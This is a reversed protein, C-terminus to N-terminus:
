HGPTTTETTTSVARRTTTTRPVTTTTTPAESTTTVAVTTTTVQVTTTTTPKVTSTTPQVTTTTTPRSTSTTTAPRTTTTTSSTTTTSGGPSCTRTPCPNVAFNWDSHGSKFWYRGFLKTANGLSVDANPAWLQTYTRSSRGFAVTQGKVILKSDISTASGFVGAPIRFNGAVQVVTGPSMTVTAGRDVTLDCFTYTGPLLTVNGDLEVNGYGNLYTLPVTGKTFTAKATQPRCNFNPMPPLEDAEVVGDNDNARFFPAPTGPYPDTPYWPGFTLTHALPDTGLCCVGLKVDWLVCARSIDATDAIVQTGEDMRIPSGDGSGNCLNLRTNRRDGGPNNVVLNGGRIVSDSGGKVSLKDLAMLVVHNIDRDFPISANAPANHQLDPRNPSLLDGAAASGAVALALLAALLVARRRGVRLRVIRTM